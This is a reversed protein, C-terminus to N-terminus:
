KEETIESDIPKNGTKSEMFMVIYGAPQALLAGVIAGYLNIPEILAAAILVMGTLFYRVAYQAKMYGEAGKADLTLSHKISKETIVLKVIVFATSFVIGGCFSINNFFVISIGCILTALAIVAIILKNGTQSLNM